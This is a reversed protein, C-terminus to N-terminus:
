KRILNAARNGVHGSRRCRTGSMESIQINPFANGLKVDIFNSKIYRTHSWTEDLDPNQNVNINVNVNVGSIDCSVNVGM